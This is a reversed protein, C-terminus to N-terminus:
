KQCIPCYIVKGGLYAEKILQEHCKPCQDKDNSMIVEYRGKEGFMNSSTNRGGFTIMEDIKHIVSQYLRHKDEDTLTNVKRKPSIKAHFLVDQLTGNGLGPIHQNTSLAQKVSGKNLNLETVHLFHEYTFEPNLPNVADMALQYYSYQSKLDEEKGLLIFGYLKIKLELIHGDHFTLQLQHKDSTQDEKKYEFSVDEGVALEMDDNLIFRIYHSTSKVDHIVNGLLISEYVDPLESM